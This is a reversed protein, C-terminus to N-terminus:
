RSKLLEVVRDWIRHAVAEKSLLPLVEQHGAPDLITVQNTDAGFGAGPATVDNAVLLDLNKKQLKRAGEQLVNETEAAFGVLLPFKKSKAKLEGLEKLIDRNPQLSIALAADTKKIKNPSNIAPRFDCVAAAKAVVTQQRCRTIVADYMEAATTVQVTEVNPPVPLHTPGSILTVHAGRISAAAALAYGMKGSAPNSIFRAPDFPEQTPGATVLISQGAMDQPMFAAYLAHRVNHWNPLRGPGEDGCAMLGIEPELVQYGFERLRKLNAQTAPHQYMKTNMAPCILIKAKTALVLASLLDEAFGYALRAITQATAPAILVLDCDRALTIHHIQEAQDPEFMESYVKNGSLAAFTLPTMFKTAARTMVVQVLAEEGALSRIWEATKYASISGTVGLVIKKGSLATTM